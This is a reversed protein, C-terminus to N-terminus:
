RDAEDLILLCVRGVDFGATQELHQLLRGPTAVVINMKPVHMQELGFEKKGGVLLGASFNHNSGISRLVQFTQVALERTPSLIITGPGDHPTYQRRFLKELVPILFALTKGSYKYFSSYMQSAFFYPHPYM